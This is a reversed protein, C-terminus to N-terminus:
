AAGDTAPEDAAAAEKAAALRKADAEPDVRQGPQKRLWLYACLGFAFTAIGTLQIALLLPLALYRTRIM